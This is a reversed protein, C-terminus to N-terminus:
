RDPLGGRPAIEGTLPAAPRRLKAQPAFAKARERRCQYSVFTKKGAHRIDMVQFWFRM